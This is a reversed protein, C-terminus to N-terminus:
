LEVLHRRYKLPLKSRQLEPNRREEVAIHMFYSKWLGQVDLEQETFEPLTNLEIPTMVWDRRTADHIIGKERRLDHIVWHQDRFRDAFHRAILPLVDHDPELQAYYFGGRVERFRVFGKM